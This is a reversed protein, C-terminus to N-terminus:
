YYDRGKKLKEDTVEVRLNDSDKLDYYKYETDLIKNKFINLFSAANKLTHGQYYKRDWGSRVLKSRSINYDEESLAYIDPFDKKIESMLTRYGIYAGYETWHHDAKFYVYEKGLSANALVDYMNIIKTNTKNKLLEINDNTEKVYEEHGTKYSGTERSYVYSNFPVILVYLKINHRGCFDNLGNLAAATSEVSEREFHKHTNTLIHGKHFLWNTNKIYLLSKNDIIVTYLKISNLAILNLRQGFRDNFWKEYDKGFNCNLNGEKTILPQWKALFRNESQSIEDQNIDSMPIFLLIFFVALFIIDIRSQHKLNKFDALYSTLKLFLLYGLFAIIIFLLSSFHHESKHGLWIHHSLQLLVM